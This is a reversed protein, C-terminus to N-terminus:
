RATWTSPRWCQAPKRTWVRVTTDRPDHSTVQERGGSILRTGDPSYALAGVRVHGRLATLAGGSPRGLYISRSHLYALAWQSLDPSIAAFGDYREWDDVEARASTTRILQADAM